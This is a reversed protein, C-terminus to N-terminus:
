CIVQETELVIEKEDYMVFVKQHYMITNKMKWYNGTYDLGTRSKKM